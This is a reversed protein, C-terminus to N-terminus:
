TSRSFPISVRLVCSDLRFLHVDFRQQWRLRKAANDVPEIVSAITFRSFDLRFTRGRPGISVNSFHPNIGDSQGIPTALSSLCRGAPPVNFVPLQIPWEKASELNICSSRVIPMHLNGSWGEGCKSRSLIVNCCLLLLMVIGKRINITTPHRSSDLVTNPKVVVIGIEDQFWGLDHTDGTTRWRCIDCVDTTVVTDPCDCFEVKPVLELM